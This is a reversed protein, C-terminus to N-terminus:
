CGRKLCSIKMKQKIVMNKFLQNENKAKYGPKLCSIKMKLNIVM